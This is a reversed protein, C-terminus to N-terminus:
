GAALAEHRKKGKSQIELICWEIFNDLPYTGMGAGDRSNINVTNDAAEAEGVVLIYPIKQARLRHKKPGIKDASVDLEVRMGYEILREYVQRAYAASKDSVTAVAIQVPALWLPFAGAFHEILIGVFRELSGLPARHIMVPRKIANDRDVYGLGFREPANYDVQVTGLQWERGICDRVVFDIKPGYFAAEGKEESAEIKMDRAVDRIQQEAKDWLEAAGIYKDSSPDRLGIRVRYDTFDLTSLVLMTLDVTGRLEEQLQAPTCFIHADDQTFGRVRVMGGLEGSQEYRYVTGFEALRVPLDRYSHPQAKYINIHHPCNMPKLLYGEEHRLNDEVISLLNDGDAASDWGEIAGFADASAAAYKKATELREVRLETTEALARRLLNRLCMLARGRDTEYLAPFQSEEYYPYHGSTRYLDLRGIHPTYVPQFGRIVLEAKIFNELLMRVLAGRPQWLVLGSGVQPSITFLNLERGIVRHDRKKAEELQKEYEVLSKKKFFATGYVRQLQQENVDGRYYSGSVQRVKFAGIVGTRPVHPGRCLDEFDQGVREGTVYFSLTDGEAREANDIKFRNAEKQLKDMATSRPMDYRCFRRDETVIRQMEAEIRPFDEPTLSHSTDLDYYFGDELPPGYALKTDPFLKCIAEAMVHATSHRLLKLSEANEDSATLIAVHCDGPVKSALDRVQPEGNTRCVAGM